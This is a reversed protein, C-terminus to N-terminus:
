LESRQKGLTAVDLKGFHLGIAADAHAHPFATGADGQGAAGSGTCRGNRGSQCPASRALADDRHIPSLEGNFPTLFISVHIHRPRCGFHEISSDGDFFLCDRKGKERYYNGKEKYYYSM